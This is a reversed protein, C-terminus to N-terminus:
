NSATSVAPILEHGRSSVMGTRHVVEGGRVVLAVSGMCRIDVSPDGNVVIIDAGKSPELTGTVEDFGIAQAAVSTASMIVQMPTLGARVLLELGIAYDGFTQIADTGSVIRAGLEHFRRVFDLKTDLKYQLDSLRAREGTSTGGAASLREIQRYGTQITPSVYIGREVIREAVRADFRRSGDPHIFNIHEIQDIGGEVANGVSEAALCHATTLKGLMHAERVAAAIEDASYSAAAQNTGLTGGGSAMIKLFDVGRKLLLRAQRRVGEIGDAEGNCWWFHGGTITLPPGSVLLRPSPFLEAAAADRLSLTTYNRAGCDRVTTVGAALHLQCNRVARILMLDDSDEHMVQEYTRGGTGFTLHAHVDILGPLITGGAFSLDEVTADLPAVVEAARGAAVIRQGQILVAGDPVPEGRRGDILRSARIRLYHNM